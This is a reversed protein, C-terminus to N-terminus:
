ILGFWVQCLWVICLEVSFGLRICGSKRKAWVLRVWGSGNQGFKDDNSSRVLGSRVQGLKVWGSGVQILKIWGSGVRGSSVQDLAVWGKGVWSSGHQDM